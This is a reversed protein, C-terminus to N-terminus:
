ELVDQWKGAQYAQLTHKSNAGVDAQIRLSGDHHPSLLQIHRTKTLAALDLGPIEGPESRSSAVLTRCGSRRALESIELPWHENEGPALCLIDATLAADPARALLRKLAAASRTNVFLLSSGPLSLRVCTAAQASLPQEEPRGDDCFEWRVDGPGWLAEKLAPGVYPVARAALFEEFERRLFSASGARPLVVRSIAVRKALELAGGLAERDDASIVLLELRLIGRRRLVEAIRAGQGPGGADLLATGGEPTEILACRGAALDFLTVSPAAPPERFLFGLNLLLFCCPIVVALRGFPLKRGQVWVWGLLVAYLVLILLPPQPLDISAGPLSAFGWNLWQLAALLAGAVLGVALALASCIWGSAVLVLGAVMCAGNLPVAFLNVLLSLTSFRGMHWAVVPATGLWAALSILLLHRVHGALWSQWAPRPPALDFVSQARWATWADNLAPYLAVLALVALFSLQFGASFLEGPAFALIALAAAGLVNLPDPERWWVLAGLYLLIMVTARVVPVNAGTLLCFACAAPFIIWASSRRSFGLWALIQFSLWALFQLHLGAIVLLHVTGCIAFAQRDSVDLRERRGFLMANLLAARSGYPNGEELGAFQAQVNDGPLFKEVEGALYGSFRRLLLGPRYWAPGALKKVTNAFVSGTRYIGQSALFGAYDFGDPLTAASPAELRALLEIRDGEGISNLSAPTTGPLAATEAAYPAPSVGASGPVDEPRVNVRVLGQAGRLVARDFGLASVSITWHKPAGPHADRAAEYVTGQLWVFAPAASTRRSVDNAAPLRAQLAHLLAGSACGAVCACGFALRGNLRGSRLYLLLFVGLVAALAFGGLAPLRPALLDDATIGACFVLALWFLPRRRQFVTAAIPAKSENAAM